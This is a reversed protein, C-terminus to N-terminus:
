KSKNQNILTKFLDVSNKGARAFSEPFQLLSVVPDLNARIYFESEDDAFALILEDKNQSFCEVLDLDKLKGDLSAALRKLFFYNHFM